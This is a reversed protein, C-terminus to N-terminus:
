LRGLAIWNASTAATTPRTIWVKFGTSEVETVATALLDSAPATGSPTAVVTPTSAFPTPFTVTASTPTNAVASVSATGVQASMGSAGQNLLNAYIPQGTTFQTPDQWAQWQVTTNTTNTRYVWLTFGASSGGSVSVGKLITGTVTTQPTLLVYPTGTFPVAFKVYVSTPINAVPTVKVVGSLTTAAIIQDLKAKTAIEGDVFTYAM